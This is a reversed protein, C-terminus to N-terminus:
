NAYVVTAHLQATGLELMRCMPTLNVWGVPVAAIGWGEPLVCPM